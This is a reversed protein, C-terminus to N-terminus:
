HTKMWTIFVHEKLVEFRQEVSVRATDLLKLYFNVKFSNLPDLHMDNGQEYM